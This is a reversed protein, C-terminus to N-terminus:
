RAMGVRTPFDIVNLWHNRHFAPWGWAPPSIGPVSFDFSTVDPGDGRPHPFRSKVSKADVGFRAM